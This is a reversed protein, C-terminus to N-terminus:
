YGIAWKDTIILIWCDNPSCEMPGLGLTPLCFFIQQFASLFSKLAPQNRERIEERWSFRVRAGSVQTFCANRLRRALKEKRLCRKSVCGLGKEPFSEGKLVM